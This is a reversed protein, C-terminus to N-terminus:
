RKRLRIGFRKRTRSAVPPQLRYEALLEALVSGVDVPHRTQHTSLSNPKAPDHGSFHFFLLPQGAALPQGRANRTLPREHLNWYAVNAGPHRCIALGPFLAPALDLWRQDGCMGEQPRNFARQETMRALWDLANRGGDSSRVGLYGANFAGARLLTLPRPTLGDEPIPTLSHPTLLLDAAALAGTLPDLAAFALCDADFYHAQSAGAQLAARLLYPKLAFCLESKTYRKRMGALIAPEVIDAARLTEIDQLATTEAPGDVLLLLFRSVPHFRRISLLTAHAAGLHSRTAVSCFTISEPAERPMSRPSHMLGRTDPQHPHEVVRTPPGSLLNPFATVSAPAAPQM